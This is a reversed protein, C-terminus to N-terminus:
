GGFIATLLHWPVSDFATGFGAISRILSLFVILLLFVATSLTDQRLFSFLERRQGVGIAAYRGLDSLAITIVAGLMGLHYNALPLATLYYALKLGNGIVGYIPKGFGLLAHENISCLIAPWVGFLLVPLMWAAARYREDYIMTVAIDSISIGFAVGSAALLLLKFRVGSLQARVDSRTASLSSSVVPFIVSYGIRTALFTPMDALARAIGYVGVVALPAVKGIYLRDFSTCLFMLISSMFIWRGFTLVEVARAKSFQFRSRDAMLFYSSLTRILQAALTAMLLSEITPSIAAAGIVIVAGAVDLALDFLNLKALQLNRHLLFISTSTLGSVLVIAGSIEWATAPVSYLQGLPTACIFFVACLLVGRLIQMVWVTNFFEPRNGHKNQIVNQAFGLDSSLEIGQRITHIILIM